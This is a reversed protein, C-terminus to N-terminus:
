RMVWDKPNENVEDEGPHVEDGRVFYNLRLTKRLVVPKGDANKMEEGKANKLTAIEGSLNGVFISFQGMDTTPEQWIAVGEKAQDEGLLIQGGVQTFHELFQNRERRKIEEFVKYPVNRDSRVVAGENTLMEFVPLYMREEDTNNIVTYPMYWYAQDDVVIRQPRKNEFDFEWTVKYPSPKPFEARAATTTLSVLGALVVLALCALPRRM